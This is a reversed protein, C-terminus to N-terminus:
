WFLLRMFMCAGALRIVHRMGRMGCQAGLRMGVFEGARAHVKGNLHDDSGWTEAENWNAQVPTCRGMSTIMGSGWTEAENWYAQVPTCRGMLTIM